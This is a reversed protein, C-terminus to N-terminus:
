EAPTEATAVSKEISIYKQAGTSSTILIKATLKGDAIKFDEANITAPKALVKDLETKINAATTSATYTFADLVKKAADEAEKLTQTKKAVKVTVTAVVPTTDDKM